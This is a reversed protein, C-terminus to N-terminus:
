QIPVAAAAAMEKNFLVSLVKWLSSPAGREKMKGAIIMLQCLLLVLKLNEGEAFKNLVASQKRKRGPLLM